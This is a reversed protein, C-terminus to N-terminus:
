FLFPYAQYDYFYKMFRRSTDVGDKEQFNM